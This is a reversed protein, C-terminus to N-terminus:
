CAMAGTKWIPVETKLRDMFRDLLRFAEKRHRSEIRVFISPEGAPVTGHRHIVLVSDCPSDGNLEGLIREITKKAMPEYIEYDLGAISRDQETERVIGWFEVVAGIEKMRSRAPCAIPRATFEVVIRMGTM